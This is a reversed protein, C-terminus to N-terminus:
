KQIRLQAKLLSTVKEKKRHYEQFSYHTLSTLIFASFFLLVNDMEMIKEM